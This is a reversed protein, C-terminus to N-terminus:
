GRAAVPPDPARTVEVAVQEVPVVYNYRVLSLHDSTNDDRRYHTVSCNAVDGAADIELIQRESMAELIYRLCLVVVQHGVILVNRDAHHLVVTDLLSRLRLIVDCWSEGGPPRHYFKGMVHRIEAQEPFHRRVGSLTYGDLIGFEKERLREDAVVPIQEMGGAHQVLSATQLARQYPSAFVVDPQDSSQAFWQGLAAAQEKGLASLAVDVDRGHIAIRDLAAEDAADRAVNGASQGHRVIWLNEPWRRAM